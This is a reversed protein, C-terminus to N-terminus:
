TVSSAVHKAESFNDGFAIIYYFCVATSSGRGPWVPGRGSFPVRYVRLLNVIPQWDVGL